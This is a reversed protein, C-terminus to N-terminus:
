TAGGRAMMVCPLLVANSMHLPTRATAQMRYVGMTTVGTSLNASAMGMRLIRFWTSILRDINISLHFVLHLIKVSFKCLDGAGQAVILTPLFSIKFILFRM